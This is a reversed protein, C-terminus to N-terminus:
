MQIQVIGQTYNKKIKSCVTIQMRFTISSTQLKVQIVFHAFDKVYLFM